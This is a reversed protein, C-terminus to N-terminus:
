PGGAPAPNVAAAVPLPAGPPQAINLSIQDSAVPRTVTQVRLRMGQGSPFPPDFQVTWDFGQAPQSLTQGDTPDQVGNPDLIVGVVSKTTDQLCGSSTFQQQNINAGDAPDQIQLAQPCSSSAVAPTKKAVSSDEPL